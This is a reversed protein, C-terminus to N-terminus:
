GRAREDAALDTLKGRLGRESIGLDAASNRQHNNNKKMTARIAAKEIDALSHRSLYEEILSDDSQLSILAEQGSLQPPLDKATICKGDCLAFAYELFNGLERVNGPYPYDMLLRQAAANIEPRPRNYERAFKDLFHSIILPIDEKREKLSPLRINVVNLRYLLEHRFEGSRIMGTVDRNTASIVRVDFPRLENSGLPSFEREQLVRLLKGQLASPMDGVEDLFLTGKDAVELKGQSDRVAGTFAGKVHGFFEGELLGEPIAVCNIPVFREDRRSGLYHIARAALEKGTGSEGTIMVSVASDKIKDITDYIRRMIASKGIMDGYSFRSHLEGKLYNVKENLAGFSLASEVFAELEEVDLPKTLYNFAGERIADVSSRISGYATMIITVSQPSIKRISRLVDLGNVDGIKLDLLVVQPRLEEVMVLGQAADTASSVKYKDELALTLSACIAREDDIILVSPKM